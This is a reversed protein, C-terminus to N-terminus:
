GYAFWLERHSVLYPPIYPVIGDSRFEWKKVYEFGLGKIVLTSFNSIGGNPINGVVGL